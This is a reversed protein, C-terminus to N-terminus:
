CYNRSTNGWTHRTQMGLSKSLVLVARTEGQWVAARSQHSQAPTSRQFFQDLQLLAM